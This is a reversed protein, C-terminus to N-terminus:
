LKEYLDEKFLEGIVMNSLLMGKNTLSLGDDSLSLYGQKQLARAIEYFKENTKMGYKEKLFEFNIGKSLRLGLMIYEDMGGGYEDFIIKPSSIFEKLNDSYHYRKGNHFSYASPGFGIYEDCNWYLNNHESMKGDKCFNSIEYHSYGQKELFECTLLYMRGQEDDSHFDYKNRNAYFETGEEVSLLYTSIHEPNLKIASSLSSLLSTETQTPIALMIDLSINDFGIKRALNVTNVIDEKTHKRGLLALEDDCFSQAGVSLRNVSLKKATTLFSTLDGFPNVEVTIEADNVIEFSSRLVEFIDTLLNSPLVSPTGGGIYVTDIKNKNGKSVSIIERKLSNVYDTYIKETSFTSYFSCYRCKTKCFPIHIYIGTKHLFKAKVLAPSPQPM